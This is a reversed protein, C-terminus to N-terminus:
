DWGGAISSESSAFPDSFALLDDVRFSNDAKEEEKKKKKQPKEMENKRKKAPRDASEGKEDKKQKKEKKKKSKPQDKDFSIIELVGSEETDRRRGEEKLPDPERKSEKKKEPVDRKRESLSKTEKEKKKGGVGEEEKKKKKKEQDLEGVPPTERKRKRVGDDEGKERSQSEKEQLLSSEKEKRAVKDRKEKKDGLKEKKEEEEKGKREREDRMEKRGEGKWDPTKGKKEGKKKKPHFIRKPRPVIQKGDLIKLQPLMSVLNESFDEEQCLPNGVLTLSKLKKALEFGKLMDMELIFNHGLEVIKLHNSLRKPLAIIKNHSLRLEVLETFNELLSVDRISNHTVSLKTLSKLNKIGNLNELQNQSLVLTTLSGFSAGFYDVSRLSNSNM